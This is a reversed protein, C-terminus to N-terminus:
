ANPIASVPIDVGTVLWQDDEKVLTYVMIVPLFFRSSIQVNITATTSDILECRGFSADEFYLLQEYQRTVVREFDEVPVNTRFLSSAWLYAAPWDGGEILQAQTNVTTEMAEQEEMSCLEDPAPSVPPESQSPPLEESADVAPDAPVSSGVCGALLGLTIVLLSWSTAFTPSKKDLSM